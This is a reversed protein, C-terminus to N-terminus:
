PRSDGVQYYYHHTGKGLRGCLTLKVADRLRDGCYMYNWSAGSRPCSRHELVTTRDLEYATVTGRTGATSYRQAAAVSATTVLALLTIALRNMPQQAEM